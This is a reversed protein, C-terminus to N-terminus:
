RGRKKAKTRRWRRMMVWPNLSLPLKRGKHGRQGGLSVGFGGAKGRSRDGKM